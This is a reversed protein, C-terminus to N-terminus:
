IGVELLTRARVDVPWITQTQSQSMDLGMILGVLEAGALVGFCVGNTVAEDFAVVSFGAEYAQVWYRLNIYAFGSAIAYGVAFLGRQYGETYEVITAVDTSAAGLRLRERMQAMFTKGTCIAKEFDMDIQYDSMLQAHRADFLMHHNAVVADDQWGYMVPFLETNLVTVKPSLADHDFELACARADEAWVTRTIQYYPM